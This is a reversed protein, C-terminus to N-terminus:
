VSSASPTVPAVEQAAPGSSQATTIPQESQTASQELPTDQQDHPEPWAEMIAGVGAHRLTSRPAVYVRALNADLQTENMNQQKSSQKGKTRLTATSTAATLPQKTDDTDIVFKPQKPALTRKFTKFLIVNTDDDITKEIQQKALPNVQLHMRLYRGIEITQQHKKMPYSLRRIGKVCLCVVCLM